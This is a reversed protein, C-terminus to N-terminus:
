EGGAVKRKLAELDVGALEGLSVGGRKGSPSLYKQVEAQEQDQIFERVSLGIKHEEANVKVVKADVTSGVAPMEPEAAGKPKEMQSVHILGEVGPELQVFSGIKTNRLVKVKVATGVPYRKVAARWPDASLQKLGLSIKKKDTQIELIKVEVREGRKLVDAPQRISADWSIDSIHLLGSVGEAVEVFAGYSTLSKVEGAVVDGAKHSELFLSFPEPETQKLGLSIKKAAPDVSLVKVRVHDGTKFVDQPHRIRKTWSMESIPLLGEVGEELRLFTGFDTMSVVEGEVLGGVPYKTELNAWPDQSKQKLGLAVKGTEENVSLVLTEIEDGQKVFQRPNTARSWSMDEVRLLGDVGGLDVFAGFKTITKVVGRVLRGPAIQSLVQSRKQNREDILLNRRSVVINGRDKNLKIVKFAFRKGLYEDPNSVAHLDLQSGPLFAQVGDLDVIYGGKTKSAIQGEVAGNNAMASKVREWGLRKDVQRKSLVMLGEKNERRQVLVKVEDGVSATFEGRANMFEEKAIIGESKYGVDVVVEDPDIRIIRGRIIEGPELEKELSEAFVQAFESQYEEEGDFTEDEASAEAATEPVCVSEPKVAPAIKEESSPQEQAAACAQAGAATEETEPDKWPTGPGIGLVPEHKQGSAALPTLSDDKLPTGMGIEKDLAGSSDTNSNISHTFEFAM